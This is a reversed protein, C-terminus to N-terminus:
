RSWMTACHTRVRPALALTVASALLALAAFASLASRTLMGAITPPSNRTQGTMASDYKYMTSM